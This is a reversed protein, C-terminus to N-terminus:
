WGPSAGNLIRVVSAKFDEKQLMLSNWQGWGWPRFGTLRDAIIWCFRKIPLLEKLWSPSARPFLNISCLSSYECFERTKTRKETFPSMQWTHCFLFRESLMKSCDSSWLGADGPQDERICIRMYQLYTRLFPAIVWESIFWTSCKELSYPCITVDPIGERWCRPKVSSWSMGPSTRLQNEVAHKIRFFKHKTAVKWVINRWLNDNLSSFM